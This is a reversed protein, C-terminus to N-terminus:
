RRARPQRRARLGHRRHDELRQGARRPDALCLSRPSSVRVSFDLIGAVTEAPIGPGNDTVIIARDTVEVDIMPAIGAEEAADLANDILEKLVVLPWRDAGHGIQKVLERESCFDLLRSTKFTERKLVAKAAATM